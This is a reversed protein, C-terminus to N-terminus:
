LAKVARKVSNLWRVVLKELGVLRCSNSLFELTDFLRLRQLNVTNCDVHLVQSWVTLVVSLLMLLPFM